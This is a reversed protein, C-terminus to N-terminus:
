RICHLPQKPTVSTKQLKKGLGERLCSKLTPCWQVQWTVCTVNSVLSGREEQQAFFLDPLRPVLRVQYFGKKKKLESCASVDKIYQIKAAVRYWTIVTAASRITSATVSGTLNKLHATQHFLQKRLNLFDYFPM